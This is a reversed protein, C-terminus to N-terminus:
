KLLLAKRVQVSEDDVTLRYFYIGSSLSEANWIVFSNRVDDDSLYLRNVRQGRVNFIDIHASKHNTNELTFSIKTQPNFPNPFNQNLQIVAREITVDNTSVIVSEGSLIRVNTFSWGPDTLEHIGSFDSTDDKLRFRIRVDQGAFESLNILVPHWWDYRGAKRYVVTWHLDDGVEVTVFDHEWETYLWQDYLLFTEKDAPISIPDSIDVYVDAGATYFGQCDGGGRWNDTLFTKAPAFIPYEEMGFRWPILYSHTAIQWSGHINWKNLGDLFDDAFLETATAVNISLIMSQTLTLEKVVPIGVEPIITLVRTGTFTNITVLGNELTYECDGTPDSITVIGNVPADNSHVTLNITISPLPRMHLDNLTRHGSVPVNARGTIPEYGKKRITYEHWGSPLPRWFRGFEACTLRPALAESERGHIIIEAVLPQMTIADYVNGTLTSKMMQEPTARNIARNFMWVIGNMCRNITDRLLPEEPQLDSTGAEVLLKITGFQTYFWTHQDGKRGSAPLAEYRQQYNQKFISRAVGEGVNHNIDWDPAQRIHPRSPLQHAFSYPIFVKESLNGTRSSHWVISYTFRERFALDRIARVEGESWPYAGRYYDFVELGGLFGLTDGHVWNVDWNRNLDVGDIDGGVGPTFKFVGDGTVDRKNKRFSRDLGSMVVDHGEPNMNPVIWTELHEIWLSYPLQNRKLVMDRMLRMAIEKGIVEEAHILGVILIRQKDQRRSVDNSIKVGWIPM